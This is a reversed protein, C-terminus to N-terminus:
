SLKLLAEKGTMGTTVGLAAAASSVAQVRANLMDDFNKVGTVIAAADGVKEATALALYGCGLLGHQAKIILVATNPTPIAYGELVKGSLIINEM